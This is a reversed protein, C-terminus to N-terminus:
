TRSVEEDAPFLGPRDLRFRTEVAGDGAALKAAQTGLWPAFKAGHGSCASCVIVRGCRDLVFDEDATNTYLCTAENFPEPVLGPLWKTVYDVLRARAAPDVIGDRTAATTVNGSEYEAVKQANHEGGDRGGQLGYVFMPGRHVFTPWAMSLDRRPFHFIQQQTVTVPPFPVRGRLLGAMWPGAAVVAHRASWYQDNAMVVVDGDRPIMGTVPTNEEVVAGRARGAEVCAAVTAAADVVGAEPHFVVTTEFHMGPWRQGAEAPGVVEHAVGAASLHEVILDLSREAGHDIGGTTRLLQTGTDVELERWLEMSEGTIRVYLEDEYARRFIRASGHSSGCHHGIAFQEFLVVSLGRRSAAWATTSGALGAGIVAVDVDGRKGDAPLDHVM